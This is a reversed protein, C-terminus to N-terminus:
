DDRSTIAIGVGFIMLEFFFYVKKSHVSWFNINFWDITTVWNDEKWNNKWEIKM